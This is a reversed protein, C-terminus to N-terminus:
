FKSQFDYDGSGVVASLFTAGKKMIGGLRQLHAPPSSRDQATRMPAHATRRIAKRPGVGSTPGAPGAAVPRETAAPAGTRPTPLGPRNSDPDAVRVQFLHRRTVPPRWPPAGPMGVLGIPVEVGRADGGRGFGG